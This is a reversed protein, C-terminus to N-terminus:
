KRLLNYAKLHRKAQPSPLALAAPMADVGLDKGYDRGGGGFNGAAVKGCRVVGPVVTGAEEELAGDVKGL